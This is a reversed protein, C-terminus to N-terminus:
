NDGDPSHGALAGAISEARLTGYDEPGYSPLPEETVVQRRLLTDVVIELGELRNSPAYYEEVDLEGLEDLVARVTPEDQRRMRFEAGWGEAESLLLAEVAAGIPNLSLFVNELELRWRRYDGPPAFWRLRHQRRAVEGLYAGAPAAVLALVADKSVGVDRRRQQLWHDVLPLTEPSYDLRIKTEREVFVVCAEALEGVEGPPPELAEDPASEGEPPHEGGEGGEGHGNASGSM